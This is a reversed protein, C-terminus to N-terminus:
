HASIFPNLQVPSAATATPPPPPKAPVPAWVPDAQGDPSVPPSSSAAATSAAKPKPAGRAAGAAPPSPNTAAAAAVGPQVKGSPEPNMISVPPISAASPFDIDVVVKRPPHEGPESAAATPGQGADAVSANAPAGWAASYRGLYGDFTEGGLHARVQSPDPLVALAKCNEASCGDRIKLAHALFGFRDTALARQLPMLGVVSKGGDDMYAAMDSLLDFRATVYSVAAAVSAPSAFLVKECAAEVTEGALGDLCALASGPGRGGAALAQARAELAQRAVDQGGLLTVGILAWTTGAAVTAAFIVASFRAVKKSSRSCAVVCAALLLVLAGGAIWVRPMASLELAVGFVGDLSKFDALHLVSGGLDLDVTVM